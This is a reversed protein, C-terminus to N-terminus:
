KMYVEIGIVRCKVEVESIKMLWSKVQSTVEVIQM